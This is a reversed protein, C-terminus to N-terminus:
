GFVLLFGGNWGGGRQLCSFVDRRQQSDRKHTRVRPPTSLNTSALSLAQNHKACSRKWPKKKSAPKLRPSRVSASHRTKFRNSGISANFRPRPLRGSCFREIMLPMSQRRRQPLGQRSTGGLYPLQFVIYRRNLRYLSAPTQSATDTVSASIM